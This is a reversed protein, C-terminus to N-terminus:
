KAKTWRQATGELWIRDISSFNTYYPQLVIGERAPWGTRLDPRWATGLTQRGLVLYPIQDYFISQAKRVLQTKISASMEVAIQAVIADYEKNSWKGWNAAQGSILKGFYETATIGSIVNIGDIVIDFDGKSIQELYIAPASPNVSMNIELHRKWIDALYVAANSWFQETRITAKLQFGGPYGAEKMLRKAEAIRQELPKDVGYAKAVEEKTFADPLDFPLLGVEGQHKLEPGGFLPLVIDRYDIVMAMAKRVRIDNWPGKHVFGFYIGRTAPSPKQGIVAEPAYKQVKLVHAVDSDLLARLTGCVDLNGGIFADVMPASDLYYVEYRDLYPLGRMFYDPNKEYVSVKGPINEKFKFPGTGVLFSTGRPNIDKLHEPEIVSFPPTLFILLEPYPNSLRVKVTYDDVIEVADIPNLTAALVSRKPDRMKDLSYKVDKSTFPKGDHFKVGHRLNFTYTKGDSSIEWREALDPMINKISVEEKLPDTSVLANFVAATHTVVRFSLSTHADYSPADSSVATRLIGGRIPGQLKQAQTHGITPFIVMSGGLLFIITIIALMIKKM